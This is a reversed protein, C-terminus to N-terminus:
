ELWPSVLQHTSGSAHYAGERIGTSADSHSAPVGEFGRNDVLCLRHCHSAWLLQPSDAFKVGGQALIEADFRGLCGLRIHGVPAPFPESPLPAAETGEKLKSNFEYDKTM